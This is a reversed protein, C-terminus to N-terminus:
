FALRERKRKEEILKLILQQTSEPDPIATLCTEAGYRQRVTTQGALTQLHLSGFGLLKELFSRTLIVDSIRELPVIIVEHGIFGRQQIVRKNTIWYHEWKYRWSSYWWGIITFVPLCVSIAVLTLVDHIKAGISIEVLLLIILFLLVVVLVGCNRIFWYWKARPLPKIDAVIKEDEMLSFPIQKM